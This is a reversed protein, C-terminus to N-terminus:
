TGGTVDFTPRARRDVPSEVWSREHGASAPVPEVPLDLVFRAGASPHPVYRLSGGSAEVFLRAVWLGLGNSDPEPGRSYAGFLTPLMDTPIGPGQDTVEIHVREARRYAQVVVPPRGHRLGNGILNVLTQELRDPDITLLLDDDVDITVSGGGGVTEVADHCIAALSVEAPQLRIAMTDSRALDLLFDALLQVRHLQRRTVRLLEAQDDADLPRQQITAVATEAAAMPARVDHALVDILRRQWAESASLRRHELNVARTLLGALVTVVVVLGTQFTLTAFPLEYHHDALGLALATATGASVAGRTGCRLAAIFPAILAVAWVDPLIPAYTTAIVILALVDITALGRSLPCWWRADDPQRLAVAAVIAALALVALVIITTVRVFPTILEWTAFLQWTGWPLAVARIWAAAREARHADIGGM